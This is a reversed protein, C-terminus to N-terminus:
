ETKIDIIDINPKWLRGSNVQSNAFFNDMNSSIEQTQMIANIGTALLESLSGSENM